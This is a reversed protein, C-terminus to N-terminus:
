QTLDFLSSRGSGLLLGKAGGWFVGPDGRGRGTREGLWLRSNDRIGFVSSSWKQRTERWGYICILVM